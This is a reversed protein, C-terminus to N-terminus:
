VWAEGPDGDRPDVPPRAMDRVVQATGAGPRPHTGQSAATGGTEAVLGLRTGTPGPSGPLFAYLGPIEIKDDLAEHAQLRPM